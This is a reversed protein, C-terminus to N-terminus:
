IGGSVITWNMGDLRVVTGVNATRHLGLSVEYPWGDVAIMNNGGNFKQTVVGQVIPGVAITKQDNAQATARPMCALPAFGVLVGALLLAAIGKRGM